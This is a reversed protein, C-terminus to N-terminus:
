YSYIPYEDTAFSFRPLFTRFISMVHANDDSNAVKIFWRTCEYRIRATVAGSKFLVGGRQFVLVVGILFRKENPPLHFFILLKEWIKFRVEGM